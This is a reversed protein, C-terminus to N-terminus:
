TGKSVSELQQIIYEVSTDKDANNSTYFNVADLIFKWDVNDFSLTVRKDVSMSAEKYTYAIQKNDTSYKLV